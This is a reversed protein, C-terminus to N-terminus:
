PQQQEALDRSLHYAAMAYLYSHNYRTIAYFNATTLWFESGHEGQLEILAVPTDDALKDAFCFRSEDCGLAVAGAQRAAGLTTEPPALQQVLARWQDGSVRARAAVPLGPQWRHAKFYHAVSGIVDAPNNFLDIKGDNDQDVAYHLYSGPIFQPMGMAGAYSGSLQRIDIDAKQELRFLEKLQSRFFTARPPYDFGLTALADVVRHKGAHRGYRTEIGLIALIMEKAVGYQQEVSQFIDAHKQFFAQGQAVRDPQVFLRRYDAWTLVKEAPKAIRELILEQKSASGLVDLVHQRDLGEAALEDAVKIAEPHTAYSALATTSILPLLCILSLVRTAPLRTRALASVIPNPYSM